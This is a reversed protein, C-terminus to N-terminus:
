LSSSSECYLDGDGVSALIEGAQNMIFGYENDGPYSWVYTFSESSQPAKFTLLHLENYTEPFSYESIVQDWDTPAEDSIRALAKFVLAQESASFTTDKDLMKKSVQVLSGADIQDFIDSSYEGWQGCDANASFSTLIILTTILTKM